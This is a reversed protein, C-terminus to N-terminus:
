EEKLPRPRKPDVSERRFGEVLTRGNFDFGTFHTFTADFVLWAKQGFYRAGRSINELVLIRPGAVEWHAVWAFKSNGTTGDQYFQIEEYRKAGTTTEEWSWNSSTVAAALADKDPTDASATASADKNSTSDAATAPHIGPLCLILLFIALHKM